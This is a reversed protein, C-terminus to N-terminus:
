QAAGFSGIVTVGNTGGELSFTGGTEAAATGYFAGNLTGTAGAIDFVNGTGSGATATGSYTNGSITASLAIDNMGGIALTEQADGVSYVTNNTISGSLSNGAFNATLTADGYFRGATGYASASSPDVVYGVANGSYTASGTTPMDSTLATQPAGAFVGAYTSLADPDSAIEWLGYSTYQLAQGFDFTRVVGTGATIASDSSASVTAEAAEATGGALAVNASDGTYYSASVTGNASTFNLAVTSESGTADDTSTGTISFPTVPAVIDGSGNVSITAGVANIALPVPTPTPTPT